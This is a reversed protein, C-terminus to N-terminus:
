LSLDCKSEYLLRQMLQEKIEEELSLYQVAFWKKEVKVVQSIINFEAVLEEHGTFSLLLSLEEGVVPLPANTEIACGSTSIDVVIGTNLTESGQFEVSHNYLRFRPASRESAQKLVANAEEITSVNIPNYGQTRSTLNIIQRFLISEDNMVRVVTGVQKEILFHSIKTFTRVGSLSALTCESLDSIVSFGSSLDAVSFRIDTYLNDLDQKTVKQAVKIHLQNNKIDARAYSKTM